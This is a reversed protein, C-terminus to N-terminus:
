IQRWKVFEFTAVKEYTGDDKVKEVVRRESTPIVLKVRNYEPNDLLIRYLSYCLSFEGQMMLYVNGNEIYEDLKKLSEAVLEDFNEDDINAPVNPFKIDIIQDWGAKQEESWQSSSHNSFNILKKM